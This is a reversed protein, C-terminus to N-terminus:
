DEGLLSFFLALTILRMSKLIRMMTGKTRAFVM